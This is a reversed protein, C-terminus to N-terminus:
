RFLKRVARYGMRRGAYRGIRGTKMLSFLSLIRIIANLIRM